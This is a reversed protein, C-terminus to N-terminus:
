LGALDLADTELCQCLDELNEITPGAVQQLGQWFTLDLAPPPPAAAGSM